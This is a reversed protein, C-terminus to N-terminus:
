SSGLGTCGVEKAGLIDTGREWSQCLSPFKLSGMLRLVQEQKDICAVVGARGVASSGCSLKAFM